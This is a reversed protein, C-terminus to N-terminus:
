KDNTNELEYCVRFGVKLYKYKNNLSASLKSESSSNAFKISMVNAHDSRFDNTWEVFSSAKSFNIGNKKTFKMQKKYKMIVNEFDNMYPPIDNFNINNYSFILEEKSNTVYPNHNLKYDKSQTYKFYENSNKFDKLVLPKKIKPSIEKYELSTILRAPVNYTTEIYRCYAIADYWTVSVPFSKDDDNVTIIEDLEKSRNDKYEDNYFKDFEEITILNSICLAKNDKLKFQNFGAIIKSTIKKDYSYNGEKTHYDKLIKSPSIYNSRKNSKYFNIEAKHNDMEQWFQLPKINKKIKIRDKFGYYLWREFDYDENLLTPINEHRIFDIYPSVFEDDRINKFIFDYNGDAAKLFVLNDNFPIIEIWGKKLELITNHFKIADIKQSKNEHLGINCMYEEFIYEYNYNDEYKFFADGLLNKSISFRNYDFPIFLDPKNKIQSTEGEYPIILTQFNVTCSYGTFISKPYPKKSLFLRDSLERYNFSICDFSIYNQSELIDINLKDDHNPAFKNLKHKQM